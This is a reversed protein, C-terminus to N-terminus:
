KKIRRSKACKPCWHGSNKIDSPTAQWTHGEACEWSLKTRSNIYTELLCKGGREAAIQQMEEITGKAKGACKPCWHGQKISDPIAEWTHGEACEWWLKTTSNVYIESLCKGGREAAIQQMKEIGLRRAKGCRKASCKPCWSGQNKVANSTALWTHGEACEWRLKTKSNTYTDSLCKGGHEEAIRQMEELSGKMSGGCYPCWTDGNKIMNPTAEWMHGEACEWRLKTHNDIYVESLCKGGRDAVLQQMEEITSRLAEASQRDACKKCWHGRKISAPVADWKHREACQWRLKTGSNVYSDSLCKGGHEAAIRQMEEITLRSAEGRREDYCKQCWHGRKVSHPTALWKHGEACEWLLETFVDIYDDSLCKGGREAAIAQLEKLAERAGSTAYAKKLDIKKADFNLPLSIGHRECERRICAKVKKIPLRAPIQPIEILM